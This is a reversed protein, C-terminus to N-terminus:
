LEMERLRFWIILWFFPILCYKIVQFLNAQWDPLTVKFSRQNKSSGFNMPGILDVGRFYFTDDKEVGQIGKLYGVREPQVDQVLKKGFFNNLFVLCFSLGCALIVAKLFIYRRFVVSFLLFFSQLFIFVVVLGKEEGTFSFQYLNTLNGVITADLFHAFILLPYILLVYVLPFLLLSYVLAVVVKELTSAPLMLAEIGNIKNSFQSLITSTFISGAILIGGFLCVKQTEESIGGNAVNFLILASMIGILALAGLLYLKRNEVWQKKALLWVRKISFEM